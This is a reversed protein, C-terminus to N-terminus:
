SRMEELQKLKTENMWVGSEDCPFFTLKPFNVKELYLLDPFLEQMERWDMELESLYKLRLMEIKRKGKVPLADGISKEFDQHGLDSLKGGRIYLNKLGKLNSSTLWDITATPKGPLCQLDLKELTHLTPSKFAESRSLSKHARPKKLLM